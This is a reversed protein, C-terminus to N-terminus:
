TLVNIIKRTNLFDTSELARLPKLKHLNKTQKYQQWTRILFVYEENSLKFMLENIHYLCNLLNVTRYNIINNFSYSIKAEVIFYDIPLIELIPNPIKLYQLDVESAPEFSLIDSVISQIM